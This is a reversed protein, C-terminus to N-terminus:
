DAVPEFAVLAIHSRDPSVAMRSIGTLGEAELDAVPSWDLARTRMM